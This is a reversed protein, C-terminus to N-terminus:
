LPGADAKPPAGPGIAESWRRPLRRALQPSATIQGDPHLLAFEVAEEPAERARRQLIAPARQPGLVFTATALADATTADRSILTVAVSETAPWGTTPDIIHHYRTTGIEFFREYDGSSVVARDTVPLVALLQPARPHNVGVEWSLGEGKQGALYLDGGGDVIFHEFGAQRLLASVRDIAYGKAIGGLGLAMGPETLAVSRAQPDLRIKRYDVLARQRDFAGRPPLRPPDAKFDWLGRLAAWSIDFAGETQEAIRVALAILDFLEPPVVQAAGGAHANIRSLPSDPRWESMLGELRDVERFALDAAAKAQAEDRQSHPPYAIVLQWPTGMLQASARFTPWPATRRQAPPSALIDAPAASTGELRSGLQALATPAGGRNPEPQASTPPPQAPAPAQPQCAGVSLSVLLGAALPAARPWRRRAPGRPPPASPSM